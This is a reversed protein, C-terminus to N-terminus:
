YKYCPTLNQKWQTIVALDCYNGSCTTAQTPSMCQRERGPACPDHDIVQTGTRIPCFLVNRQSLLNDLFDNLCPPLRDRIAIGDAIAVLNDGLREINKTAHIDDDVIGAEQAIDAEVFHCDVIPLVQVIYVKETCEPNRM